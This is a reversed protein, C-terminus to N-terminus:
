LCRRRESLAPDAVRPRVHQRDDVEGRNAGVVRCTPHGSLAADLARWIEAKLRAHEWRAPSVPVVEGAMREFRGRPQMEAWRQFAARDPMITAM